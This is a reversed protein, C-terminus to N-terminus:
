EQSTTGGPAMVIGVDAGRLVGRHAVAVRVNGMLKRLFTAVFVAQPEKGEEFVIRTARLSAPAQIPSLVDFGSQTLVTTVAAGDGGAQLVRVTINAPLETAPLEKGLNFLRSGHKMRSFLTNAQPQVAEVYDVGDITVPTSPVVRFDVDASGVDQLRRALDTVDIVNLFQDVTLNQVAAKALLPLRIISGPSLVKALLARIFQQQRAIRSFDPIVDGEVHRARVFALAQDGNLNYCGPKPIYLYALTDKLPRNVCVPVGGLANVLKQFGAFNVEVYHNVPLNTFREITRVMLDPGGEFASNIKDMGRGPIEVRLDRPFSLMIGTGKKPDVHLLIITDARQGPVRSVTGNAEQFEKSTGARSDSGLILVNQPGPLPKDIETVEIPHLQSQAYVLSVLGTISGLAVAASLVGACVLLV